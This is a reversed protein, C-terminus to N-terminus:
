TLERLRLYSPAFFAGPSQIAGAPDSQPLPGQSASSKPYLRTIM